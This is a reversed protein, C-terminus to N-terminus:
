VERGIFVFESICPAIVNASRTIVFRYHVYPTTNNVTYTITRDGDNWQSLQIRDIINWTVEDNSAALIWNTFFQFQQSMKYGTIIIPKSVTMQFWAGSIGPIGPNATGQYLGTSTSYVGKNDFFTYTTKSRDFLWASNLGNGGNNTFRYSIGQQTISSIGPQVSEPPFEQVISSAGGTQWMATGKANYLVLNGDTELQLKFFESSTVTGSAWYPYDINGQVDRTAYLVFNGDGQLAAYKPNTASVNARWYIRGSATSLTLDGNQTYELVYAQSPSFMKFGPYMYGIGGTSRLSSGEIVNWNSYNETYQDNNQILDGDTFCLMSGDAMSMCSQIHRQTM